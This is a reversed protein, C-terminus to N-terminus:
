LPYSTESPHSISSLSNAKVSGLYKGVKELPDIVPLTALIEKNLYERSQPLPPPGAVLTTQPYNSTMVSSQSESEEEASSAKPEYASVHSVIPPPPRFGSTAVLPPPLLTKQGGMDNQIKVGDFSKSARNAHSQASTDGLPPPPLGKVPPHGNM